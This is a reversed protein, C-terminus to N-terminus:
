VVWGYYVTEMEIVLRVHTSSFYTESEHISVAIGISHEGGYGMM